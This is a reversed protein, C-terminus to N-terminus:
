SEIGPVKRSEALVKVDYNRSRHLNYAVSRTIARRYLVRGAIGAREFRSSDVDTRVSQALAHVIDSVKEANESLVAASTM